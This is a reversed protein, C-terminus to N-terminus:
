VVPTQKPPDTPTITTATPTFTPTNTPTVPTPTPTFTPTNTPTETVTPTQKPPDTPTITTATPTFTPTSTPTVPTSTPTFTPTNTPQQQCGYDGAYAGPNHLTVLTSNVWVSASTINYYGPAVNDTFHVVNGTHADPPITGYTYTLDSIVDGEVTNLLVFHIEVYTGLCEIHSLNLQYEESAQVPQDVQSLTFLLIIALLLTSLTRM